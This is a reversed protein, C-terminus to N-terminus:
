VLLHSTIIPLYGPDNSYYCHKAPNKIAIEGLGQKWDEHDEQRTKRDEYNWYVRHCHSYYGDTLIEGSECVWNGVPGEESVKLSLITLMAQKRRRWMEVDEWKGERM